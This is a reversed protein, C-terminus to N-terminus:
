KLILWLDQIRWSNNDSPLPEDKFAVVTGPSCKKYPVFSVTVTIICSLSHVYTYM